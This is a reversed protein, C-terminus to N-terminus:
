NQVTYKCSQRYVILESSYWEPGLIRFLTYLSTQVFVLNQVCMCSEFLHGVELM